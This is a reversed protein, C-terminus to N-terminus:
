GANQFLACRMSCAPVGARPIALVAADVEMPLESVSAVCPREGIRDRKPNVLHSEGAFGHRELNSLVSAGLSGPKDSAGVIAVSRPRLLRGLSLVPHSKPIIDDSENM